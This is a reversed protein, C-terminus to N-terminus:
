GPARIRRSFDPAHEAARARENVRYRRRAEDADAVGPVLGLRIAVDDAYGPLIGSLGARVRDPAAVDVHRLLANTCNDTLTNYFAPADHLRAARTMMDVFLNRVVERSAAIPYLYVPDGEHIARRGILDRETGVVYILEYERVIGRLPSYPEGRTRRSEISVALYSGDDFGFSVFTHAPARWRRSLPV